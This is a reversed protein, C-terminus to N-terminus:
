GGLNYQLYARIFPDLGGDLVADTNGTEHDTRLDKVMHYPHLVYSRIQNGWGASVHKGKIKAREEERKAEEIAFLRARLVKMAVARNQLQSRENQCTAVIGTPIHTIRVATSNKQVNQGGAGASRFVDLKIDDPKIEIEVADEVDPMVEVLAFSTHRRHAADFPSLRVLRHVGAEGHLYGYAYEGTVSFTVSKIGAEEGPMNELLETEFHRQEAWRLYMRLLMQAWDQSETGGAGAYVSVVASSADHPGSLSLLFEQQSLESGLSQVDKQVEALTEADGEDEALEKLAALDSARRAMEKWAFVKKRLRTTTAMVEGAHDASLWFDAETSQRELEALQKEDSAIDFISWSTNSVRLSRNWDKRNRKWERESRAPVHQV